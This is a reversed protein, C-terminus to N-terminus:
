DTEGPMVSPYQAVSLSFKVAVKCIHLSGHSPRVCSPALTLLQREHTILENLSSLFSEVWTQFQNLKSELWFIIQKKCPFHLCGVNAYFIHGGPLFRRKFSAVNPAM